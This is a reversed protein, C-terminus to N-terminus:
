WRRLWYFFAATLSVAAYPTLCAHESCGVTLIIPVSRVIREVRVIRTEALPV